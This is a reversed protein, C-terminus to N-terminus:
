SRSTAAIAPASLSESPLPGRPTCPSIEIVGAELPQFRFPSVFKRRLNLLHAPDNLAFCRGTLV